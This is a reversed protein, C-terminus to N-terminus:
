GGPAVEFPRRRSWLTLGAAVVRWQRQWTGAAPLDTTLTTYEAVGGPGDTVTVAHGADRVGDPDFLYLTVTAATLDLPSGDRTATLRLTQTSGTTIPDTTM